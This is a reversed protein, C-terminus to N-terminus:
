IIKAIRRLIWLIDESNRQNDGNCDANLLGQTRIRVEPDEAVLRALMVADSVDIKRDLNVDGKIVSLQEETVATTETTISGTGPGTVPPESATVTTEPATEAATTVAATESATTPTTAAKTTTTKATTAKTTTTKSTTAKTTTAKTTATTTMKTTTSTTTTTTTTTATTTATTTTITTASTTTTTTVTTTTTEATTESATTTETQVPEETSLRLTHYAVDMEMTNEDPYAPAKMIQYTLLGTEDITMGYIEGLAKEEATLSYIKKAYGGEMPMEYIANPVFYYINGDYIQTTVYCLVYVTDSPTAWAANVTKLSVPTGTATSRMVTAKVDYGSQVTSPNAAKAYLWEGEPLPHMTDMVGQWFASRYQTDDCTVPIGEAYFVWDSAAHYPDSQMLADDDLVYMHTARGIMDPAGDDYTTDCHYWKGDIQVVNWMHKLSDSTVAYCPIGLARCLICMALSYGQCVSSGGLIASYADYYTYTMDYSCHEALYDHLYLVKEADSWEPQVAGIIASVASDLAEQMADVKNLDYCYDVSFSSVYTNSRSMTYHFSTGVYFWKAEQYLMEYYLDSIEQLSLRLYGVYLQTKREKWANHILDRFSDQVSAEAEAASAPLVIALMMVATLLLATLKKLASRM